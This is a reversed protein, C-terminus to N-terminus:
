LRCVGDIGCAASEAGSENNDDDYFDEWRIPVWSALLENFTKNAVRAKEQFDPTLQEIEEESRVKVYPAQNYALDGEDAPLLSLGAFSERNEHIFDAVDAIESKLVPVTNSVNHTLLGRTTAPVVWNQQVRRVLDLMEVAGFSDKCIAQEPSTIPFRLCVEGQKYASPVVMLPNAQKLFVNIPLDARGGEVHRIYKPAHAAHIGNTTKLLLSGTGEPKVCTIRAATNIGIDKAVRANTAVAHAALRKLLSDDFIDANEAMGTLSVGLLADRKLINSTAPGFQELYGCEMYSAQLTGVITAAEVADEIEAVTKCASVNATSLNCFAIGTTNTEVDYPELGIEGCANTGFELDACLFIGPEGFQMAYNILDFIQDRSTKDRLLAMSNNALRRHLHQDFWNGTKAQAMDSDDHSFIIMGAVRRIGGARVCELLVTLVDLVQIPQAVGGCKVIGDLYARAAELSNRLPEPGPAPAASSSIEAGFPRVLSFDFEVRHSGNVYSMILEHTADAWGEISDRVQHEIATDKPPNIRSLKSVHHKQLSVGYGCGCLSLWMIQAFKNWNDLHTFSCNYIRINKDLIPKGGFQMARQSGLIKRQLLHSEVKQFDSDSVLAGLKTRHMSMVRDVIEEFTEYRRKSKVYRSYKTICTHTALDDRPTTM